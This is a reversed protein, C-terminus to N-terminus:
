LAASSGEKSTQPSHCHLRRRDYQRGRTRTASDNGGRTRGHNLNDCRRGSFLSSATPPTIGAAKKMKSNGDPRAPCIERLKLTQRGEYVLCARARRSGYSRSLAYAKVGRTQPPQTMSLWGA